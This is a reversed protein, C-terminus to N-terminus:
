GYYTLADRSKPVTQSVSEGDLHALISEMTPTDIRGELRARLIDEHTLRAYGVQESGKSAPVAPQAPIPRAPEDPKVGFAKEYDDRYAKETHHVYRGTTSLSKHRAQKRVTEMSAGAESMHSLGSHRFLHPHVEARRKIGSLEAAEIVIKTLQIRSIGENQNSLFLVDECGEEPATRENGIYDRLSQVAEPTLQVIDYNKGKGANVRLRNNELDLSSLTLNAVESVRLCGYYMMDIVARNRKGYRMSSAAERIAMVESKTLPIREVKVTRPVDMRLDPRKLIKELYRNVAVVQVCQSNETLRAALDQLFKECDEATIQEPSKNCLRLFSGLVRTYIAVTGPSKRRATLYQEFREVQGSVIQEVSTTSM